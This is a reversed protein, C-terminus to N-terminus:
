KLTAMWDPVVPLLVVNVNDMKKIDREIKEVRTQYDSASIDPQTSRVVVYWWQGEKHAVDPVVELAYKAPQHPILREQVLNIIEQAAPETIILTESMAKM